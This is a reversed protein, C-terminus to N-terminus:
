RAARGAGSIADSVLTVDVRRVGGRVRYGAHPPVDFREELGERVDDADAAIAIRTTTTAAAPPVGAEEEEDDEDDDDDDDDGGLLDCTTGFTRAGNALELAM